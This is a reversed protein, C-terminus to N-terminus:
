LILLISINSSLHILIMTKERRGGRDCAGSYFMASCHWPLAPKGPTWSLPFQAATVITRHKSPYIIHNGTREMYPNTKVPWEMTSVAELFAKRIWPALHTRVYFAPVSITQWSFKVL